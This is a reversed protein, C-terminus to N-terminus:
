YQTPPLRVTLGDLGEHLVIQCSLRSADTRESSTMELMAREDDSPPPLRDTWETAVYVHCTACTLCGGCDGVIGDIGADTAARMLSTGPAAEVEHWDLTGDHAFIRVMVQAAM